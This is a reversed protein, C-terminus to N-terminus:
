VAVPVPLARRCSFWTASGNASFSCRGTVGDDAVRGDVVEDVGAESPGVAMCAIKIFSGSLSGRKSVGEPGGEGEVIM